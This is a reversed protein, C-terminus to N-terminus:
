KEGGMPRPKTRIFWILWGGTFAGYVAAGVSGALIYGIIETIDNNIDLWGKFMFWDELLATASGLSGAMILAMSSALVWWGAQYVHQRISFYQAIGVSLGILAWDMDWSGAQWGVAIKGALVGIGWGIVSFLMWKELGIYRQLYIQQIISIFIGIISWGIITHPIYGTTLSITIVVAVVITNILVWQGWFLFGIITPRVSQRCM